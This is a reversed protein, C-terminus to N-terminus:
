VTHEGQPAQLSIKSNQDNDNDHPDTPLSDYTRRYLARTVLTVIFMELIMLQQSLMTGRASSSFPPSCAITGDLALINIIATQLQSLVLVLQYMAYKPIIKISRLTNCINMFMIAVPWLSIITLVGIFPNIWIATGTIELDSLDFNGNSWLIISVISLVTKLIAYQLAGLKLLFLMCRTVPVRPLCPCCCCCPGVSINFTKQANSKLFAESGGSEEIMLVLIKYVVVAFYSNSTMDTFMTARPIWMGFCAMTAIVPAAGNVWMITTKKPSPVKRYIFVCEELYLLLSLTSMLTLMSYLAVGFVDLQKIVDIALPPEELCTPHITSNLAEEMDM